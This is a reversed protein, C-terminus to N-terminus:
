FVVKCSYVVYVVLVIIFSGGLSYNCLLAAFDVAVVGYRLLLLSLMSQENAM